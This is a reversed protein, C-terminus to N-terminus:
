SAVQGAEQPLRYVNIRGITGDQIQRKELSKQLRGEGALSQLADEIAKGPIRTFQGRVDNIDFEERSGAIALIEKKLSRIFVIGEAEVEQVLAQMADKDLNYRQRLTYTLTRLPVGAESRLHAKIEERRQELVEPYNEALFSEYDQFSLANIKHEEACGLCLLLPSLHRKICTENSLILCFHNCCRGAKPARYLHWITTPM